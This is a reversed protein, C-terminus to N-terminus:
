CHGSNNAGDGGRVGGGDAKGLVLFRGLVGVPRLNEAQEDEYVRVALKSIKTEGEVIRRVMPGFQTEIDELKVGADEVTDHLLGAVLAAVDLHLEALVETVAVPHSIFPEGSRRMAGQHAEFALCYAAELRELDDKDLYAAKEKLTPPLEAM